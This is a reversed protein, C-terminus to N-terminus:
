MKLMKWLKVGNWLFKINDPLTIINANKYVEDIKTQMYNQCVIWAILAGCIAGIIAFMIKEKNDMIGSTLEKIIKSGVILDLDTPNISPINQNFQVLGGSEEDVVYIRTLKNIYTPKEYDIIYDKNGIKLIKIPNKLEKIASVIRMGFEYRIFIIKFKNKAFREFM